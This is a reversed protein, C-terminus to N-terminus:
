HINIPFASPNLPKRRGPFMLVTASPSHIEKTSKPRTVFLLIKLVDRRKEMALIEAMWPRIWELHEPSQIVWILTLRRTAVVGNAYGAVLERVFPIQHTIGIGGAILVVTGYSSLTDIKGYPGEVFATTTFSKDPAEFAKKVLSDTFGTRRRIVLSMTKDSQYIDQRHHSLEEGDFAIRQQEESWSITFPHSTWLGIKPMYLYLHQGPRFKWPRVMRITVRVAGGPLAEVHATTMKKGVNVKILKYLRYFRDIGWYIMANKLYMLWFYNSEKYSLHHYLGACVVAAALIHFTLFTEYFAHRIASPSHLLLFTLAVAAKFETLLYV